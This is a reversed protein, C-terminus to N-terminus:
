LFCNEITLDHGLLSLFINKLIVLASAYPELLYREKWILHRNSYLSSIKDLKYVFYLFPLFAITLWPSGEWNIYMISDKQPCCLILFGLGLKYPWLNLDLCPHVFKTQIFVRLARQWWQNDPDFYHDQWVFLQGLYTVLSCSMDELLSGWWM